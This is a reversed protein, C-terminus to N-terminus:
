TCIFNSSLCSTNNIINRGTSKEIPFCGSVRNRHHYLFIWGEKQMWRSVKFMLACINYLIDYQLNSLTDLKQMYFGLERFKSFVDHM